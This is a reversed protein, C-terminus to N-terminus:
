VIIYHLIIHYLICMTYTIMTIVIVITTHIYIYIYVYTYIHIYIYIYIYIHTHTYIYIYVCAYMHIWVFFGANSPGWSLCPLKCLHKRLMIDVFVYFSLM